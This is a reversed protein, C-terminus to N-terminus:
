RQQKLDLQVEVDELCKVSTINEMEEGTFPPTTFKLHIIGKLLCSRRGGQLLLCSNLGSFKSKNKYGGWIKKKKQWFKEHGMLEQEGLKFWIYIAHNSHNEKWIRVFSQAAMTKKSMKFPYPRSIIPNNNTWWEPPAKNFDTRHAGVTENNLM